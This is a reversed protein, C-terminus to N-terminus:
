RQKWGYIVRHGSTRASLVASAAILLTERWSDDWVNGRCEGLQTGFQVKFYAM